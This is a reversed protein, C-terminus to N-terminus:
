QDEKLIINRFKEFYDLVVRFGQGDVNLESITNDDVDGSETEYLEEVLGTQKIRMFIGYVENPSINLKEAYIKQFKPWTNYNYSRKSNNNDTFIKFDVLSKIERYSMTNLIDMYEEFDNNSIKEGSLYGNRILNGFYKVKDNSALRKVAEMTKAYNFIFEIDNVEESTISGRDKLIVDIFEKEKEQQFKSITLNISSDIMDGIVPVAKVVSMVGEIVPNSKIDAIDNINEVKLKALEFKDNM